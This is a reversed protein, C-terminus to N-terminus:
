TLGYLCACLSTCRLADSVQSLGLSSLDTNPLATGLPKESSTLLLFSALLLNPDLVCLPAHSPESIPPPFWPSSPDACFAPGLGGYMHTRQHM